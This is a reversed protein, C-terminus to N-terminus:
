QVVFHVKIQMRGSTTAEESEHDPPRRVGFIGATFDDTVKSELGIAGGWLGSYSIEGDGRLVLKTWLRKTFGIVFGETGFSVGLSDLGITNKLPDEIFISMLESTVDKIVQDSASSFSSAGGTALVGSVATPTTATPAEAIDGRARARMEDTTRCTTILFLTQANNLGTDTSLQWVLHNLTGTIVLSVLHSNNDCDIFPSEAALSITPTDQGMRRTGYFTVNGGQLAFSSIRTAPIRFTGEDARLEGDFTPRSLTGGIVLKGTLPIQAINNAVRFAGTTEITLDLGLNELLPQGLWFPTSREHTREPVFYDTIRFKEIYRGDVVRLAGALTLGRAGGGLLVDADLELELSDPLRYPFGSLSVRVDVDTPQWNTLLVTAEPRDGGSLAFTGEEITGAIGALAVRRNSLRIEGGTLTIERRLGRPSLEFPSDFRVSGDLLPNAPAGKVTLRASASGSAHSIERPLLMALLAGSIRGTVALDLDVPRYGALRVVGSAGLTQDAVAVILGDVSIRDRSLTLTGRPIRIAQEQDHLRIAADKFAVTGTVLPQALTGGVRVDVEASGEAQDVFRRTYFELLALYVTGKVELALAKPSASGALTFGGRESELRVPHAFTATSTTPDIHIAIEGRNRVTLPLPRGLADVGDINAVAETLILEAGRGPETSFDISGTVWGHAGVAEALEPAFEDIELRHFAIRGSSTFPAILGVDLDVAIKGQFLSGAVRMRGPGAPALELRGTGLLDGLVSFGAVALSGRVEPRSLTGAISAAITARGDLGLDPRERVGPLLAVPIRRVDLRLDPPDDFGIRGSAELTGTSPQGVRLTNIAVGDGDVTVAATGAGLSFGIISLDRGGATLVLDPRRTTGSGTLRFGVDGGLLGPAYPSRGLDLGQGELTADIIAVERGIRLHAKGAIAGGLPHGSVRDLDLRGSATLYTLDLDLGGIIPVGRVSVHAGVVPADLAGTITGNATLGTAVAPAHFRRLYPALRAVNVDFTVKLTNQRRAVTAREAQPMPLRVGPPLPVNSEAFTVRDGDLVVELRTTSVHDEALTVAGTLKAKGLAVDIQDIEVEDGVGAIHLGGSALTGEALSRVDPPLYPGVDIPEPVRVTAEHLRRGPVNLSAAIEARGGLGAVELRRVEAEGMASDYSAVLDVVTVPKPLGHVEVGRVHADIMPGVMLGTMSIEASAADGGLRKASLREALAGGGTVRADLDVTGAGPKLDLLNGLEGSVAVEAGDTTRAHLDFVFTDQAAKREPNGDTVPGDLVRGDLRCALGPQCEHYQGFRGVRVDRLDLVVGGVDVVGSTALLQGGEGAADEGARALPWVTYTFQAAAVDRASYYLEGGTTVGHLDAKWGPSFDLELDVDEFYYDRLHIILGPENSPKGVKAPSLVNLFGIEYPRDPHRDPIPNQYQQVKAWVKRGGAPLLHLDDVLIDGYGWPAILALGALKGTALPVDLVKDDKTQGPGPAFLRVNVLELPMKAGGIFYLPWKWVPWRVEDCSVRGRIPGNMQKEIFIALNPGSFRWAIFRTLEGYLIGLALLAWLTLRFLKRV